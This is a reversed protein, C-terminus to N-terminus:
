GSEPSSLVAWIFQDLGSTPRFCVAKYAIMVELVNYREVEEDTAEAAGSGQDLVAVRHPTLPLVIEDANAVGVGDFNGLGGHGEGLM